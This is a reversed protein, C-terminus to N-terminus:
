DPAPTDTLLATTTQAAPGLEAGRGVAVGLLFTTLPAAVREVEHAADRAVDLVTRILDDDVTLETLGLERSLTELWEELTM